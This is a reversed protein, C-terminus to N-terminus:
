DMGKEETPSATEDAHSSRRSGFRWWPKKQATEERELLANALSRLSRTIPARPAIDSIPKGQNIASMTVRYDNPLTWFVSGHLGEEAEKVSIEANKTYRNVVIKVLEKRPFGLSRFSELLKTTNSLCPVSLTSVLLVMNSMELTKSSLKGLLHGADIVVVDFMSQALQLVRGIIRPVEEQDYHFYSPSPLVHVGSPHKSLINM